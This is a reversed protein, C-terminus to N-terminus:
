TMSPMRILDPNIRSPPLPEPPVARMKKQGDKSVYFVEDQSATGASAHVNVEAMGPLASPKADAIEVNIQRGWGFLDRVYAELGPKDVAPKKDDAPRAAPALLCALLLLRNWHGTM